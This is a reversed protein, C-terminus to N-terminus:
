HPQQTQMANIEPVGQVVSAMKFQLANVAAQLVENQARAAANDEREQATAETLGELALQLDELNKALGQPVGIGRNARLRLESAVLVTQLSPFTKGDSPRM